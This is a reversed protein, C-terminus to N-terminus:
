FNLATQLHNHLQIIKTDNVNISGKFEKNKYTEQFEKQTLVLLSEITKLRTLESQNYRSKKAIKKLIRCCDLLMSGISVIWHIQIPNGYRSTSQYIKDTLENIIQLDAFIRRSVIHSCYKLLQFHVALLDPYISLSTELSNTLYNEYKTLFRKALDKNSFYYSFEGIQILISYRSSKDPRKLFEASDSINLIIKRM